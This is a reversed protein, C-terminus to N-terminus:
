DGFVLPNYTLMQWPFRGSITSGDQPIPTSHSNESHIETSRAAGGVGKFPLHGKLAQWLSGLVETWDVEQPLYCTPVTGKQWDRAATGPGAPGTKGM